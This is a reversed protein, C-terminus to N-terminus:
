MQPTQLTEWLSDQESFLQFLVITIVTKLRKRNQEKRELELKMKRVTASNEETLRESKKM